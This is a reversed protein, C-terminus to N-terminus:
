LRTREDLRALNSELLDLRAETATALRDIGALAEKHHADLKDAMALYTAAIRDRTATMERHFEARTIYDPKPSDKRGLYKKAIAAGGTVLAIIIGATASAATTIQSILM